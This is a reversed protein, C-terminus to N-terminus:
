QGRLLSRIRALDQGTQICPVAALRNELHRAWKCLQRRHATVSVDWYPNLEPIPDTALQSVRFLDYCWGREICLSQDCLRFGSTALWRRVDLADNAPALLWDANRFPPHQCLAQLIWITKEGGVGALVVLQRGASVPQLSEAAVAHFCADARSDLRAQLRSMIGPVQDVFHVRHAKGSDLLAEGLFGHDCALDWALDYCGDGALDHLARLRVSLGNM